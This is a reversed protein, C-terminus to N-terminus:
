QPSQPLASSPRHEFAQAALATSLHKHRSRQWLKECQAHPKPAGNHQSYSDKLVTARRLPREMLIKGRAAERRSQPAAHLTHICLQWASARAHRPV